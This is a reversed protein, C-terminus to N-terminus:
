SRFGQLMTLIYMRLLRKDKPQGPHFNIDRVHNAYNIFMSLFHTVLIDYNTVHITLMSLSENHPFNNSKELCFPCGLFPHKLM